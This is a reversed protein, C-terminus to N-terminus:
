WSVDQPAPQPQEATQVTGVSAQLEHQSGERGGVVKWFPPNSSRREVKRIRWLESSSGQRRGDIDDKSTNSHEIYAWRYFFAGQRIIWLPFM